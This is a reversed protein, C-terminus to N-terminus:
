RRKISFSAATTHNDIKINYCDDCYSKGKYLFEREELDYDWEEIKPYLCDKTIIIDM